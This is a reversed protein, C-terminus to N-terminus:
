DTGPYRGDYFKQCTECCERGSQYCIYAGLTNCWEVTDGYECGVQSSKVRSCTDCCTDAYSAHYCSSRTATSRCFDPDKDGYACGIFYWCHTEPFHFTTSIWKCM